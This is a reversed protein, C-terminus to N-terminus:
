RRIHTPTVDPYEHLFPTHYQPMLVGQNAPAAQALERDFGRRAAEDSLSRAALEQLETRSDGAAQLRVRWYKPAGRLADRRVREPPLYFRVVSRGAELGVLEVEGQYFEIRSGAKATTLEFGLALTVRVPGTVRGPAGDAPRADLTIGTEYWERQTASPARLTRFDVRAVSIRESAAIDPGLALGVLALGTRLLSQLPTM